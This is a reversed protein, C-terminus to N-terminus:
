KGPANNGAAPATSAPANNSAAPTNTAPSDNSAGSKVNQSEATNASDPETNAKPKAIGSETKTPPTPLTTGTVGHVLGIYGAWVLLAFGIIGAGFVMGNGSTDPASATYNVSSVPKASVSETQIATAETVEKVDGVTIRVPKENSMAEFIASDGGTVRLM